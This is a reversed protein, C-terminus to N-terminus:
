SHTHIKKLLPANPNDTKRNQGTKLDTKRNKCWFVDTKGNQHRNRNATKGKKLMQNETKPLSVLPKRIQYGIRNEIKGIQNGIERRCNHAEVAHVHWSESALPSRSYRGLAFTVILERQRGIFYCVTGTLKM